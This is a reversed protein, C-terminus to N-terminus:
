FPSLERHFLSECNQEDERNASSIRGARITDIENLRGCYIAGREVGAIALDLECAVFNDDLLTLSCDLRVNRNLISGLLEDEGGDSVAFPRAAFEMVEVQRARRQLQGEFARLRFAGHRALLRWRCISNQAPPM